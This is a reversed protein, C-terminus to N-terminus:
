SFHEGITVSAPQHASSSSPASSEFQIAVKSARSNQTQQWLDKTSRGYETINLPLEM